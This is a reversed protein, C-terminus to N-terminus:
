GLEGSKGEVVSKRDRSPLLHRSNARSQQTEDARLSVLAAQGSYDSEASPNARHFYPLPISQGAVGVVSPPATPYFMKASKTPAPLRSAQGVKDAPVLFREAARM